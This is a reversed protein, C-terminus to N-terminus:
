APEDGDDSAEDDGDAGFWALLHGAHERYHDPGNERIVTEVTEGWPARVSLLAPDLSVLRERFREFARAERELVAAWALTRAERAVEANQADVDWEDHGLEALRAAAAEGLAGAAVGELCVAGWECWHALHAVLERASWEGILGPATLLEPDAGSLATSFADRERDLADTLASIESSTM